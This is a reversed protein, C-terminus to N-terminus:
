GAVFDLGLWGASLALLIGCAIPVLSPLWWQWVELLFRGSLTAKVKMISMAKLKTFLPTSRCCAACSTRQRCLDVVHGVQIKPNYKWCHLCLM